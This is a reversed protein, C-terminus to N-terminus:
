CYFPAFEKDEAAFDISFGICKLKNTFIEFNLFRRYHENYIFANPQNKVPAGKGFIENKQGRAEICFKGNPNLNQFAWTLVKDEKQETISHITFRSYIVDFQRSNDLNTFDACEFTINEVQIYRNKLFKIESSIQDIATVNFNDNAFYIADRGNGCGLEIISKHKKIVNERVYRAFLSPKLETNQRAYYSEWYKKDFM